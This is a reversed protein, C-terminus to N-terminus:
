ENSGPDEVRVLGYLVLKNILKQANPAGLEREIAALTTTGADVLERGIQYYRGPLRLRLSGRRFEAREQSGSERSVELGDAPALKVDHNTAGAIAALGTVADTIEEAGKPASEGLRRSVQEEITTNLLRESLANLHALYRETLDHQHDFLNPVEQYAQDGVFEDVASRILDAWTFPKTLLSLHMSVVDPAEAIHPTGKPVYLCDGTQLLTDIVPPGPDMNPLSQGIDPVPILQSYVRWRKTGALQVVFVDKNDMHLSFGEEGPPTIFIVAHVPCRLERGLARCASRIEADHDEYADLVITAGERLESLLRDAVAADPSLGQAIPTARTWKEPPVNRGQKVVRIYPPRLARGGLVRAVRNPDLLTETPSFAQRLLHPERGWYRRTFKGADSTLRQLDLQQLDKM